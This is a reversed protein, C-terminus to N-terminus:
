SLARELQKRTVPKENATQADIKEFLRRLRPSLKEWKEEGYEEVYIKRLTM